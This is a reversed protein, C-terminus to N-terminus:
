PRIGPNKRSLLCVASVLVSAYCQHKTFQVYLLCDPNSFCSWITDLHSVSPNYLEQTCKYVADGYAMLVSLICVIRLARHLPPRCPTLASDQRWPSSFYRLVISPGAVSVCLMSSDSLTWSTKYGICLLFCLIYNWKCSIRSCPLQAIINGMM